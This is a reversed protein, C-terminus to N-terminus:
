VSQADFLFGLFVLLCPKWSRQMAYTFAVFAAIVILPHPSQLVWLIADILSEMMEALGDFFWAGHIQLWDFVGAAWKGIPIKHDTLWDM